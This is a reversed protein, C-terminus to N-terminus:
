SSSDVKSGHAKGSHTRPMRTAIAETAEELKSASMEFYNKEPKAVPTDDEFAVVREPKCVHLTAEFTLREVPQPLVLSLAIRKAQEASPVDRVKIAATTAYIVRDSSKKVLAVTATGERAVTHFVSATLQTAGHEPNDPDFTIAPSTLASPVVELESVDAVVTVFVSVLYHAM